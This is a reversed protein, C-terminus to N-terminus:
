REDGPAFVYGKTTEIAKLKGQAVLEFLYAKATHWSVGLHYAVYDISVPKGAKKVTELIQALVKRRDMRVM